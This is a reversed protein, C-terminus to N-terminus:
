WAHQPALPHPRTHTPADPCTCEMLNEDQLVKNEKGKEQVHRNRTSGKLDFVKAMQRGYLLNEMVVMDIKSNTGTTPNKLGVRYVGFIKCLVTPLENFFAHSIYEFYSPAFKLFADMEVKSLQKM